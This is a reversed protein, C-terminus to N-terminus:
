LFRVLNLEGETGISVDLMEKNITHLASLTLVNINSMAVTTAIVTSFQKEVKNM